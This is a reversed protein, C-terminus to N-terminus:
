SPSATGSTESLSQADRKMAHAPARSQTPPGAGRQIPDVVERGAGGQGKEWSLPEAGQGVFERRQHGGDGTECGRNTEKRERM